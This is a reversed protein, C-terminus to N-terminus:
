ILLIDKADFFSLNKGIFAIDQAAHSGSGDSDYSVMGTAMNYITQAHTGPGAEGKWISIHFADDDVLGDNNKDLGTFIAKSLAIKDDAGFDLISDRNAAGMDAFFFTDAGGKGWLSDNGAGGAIINNGSNGTILNGLENGTGNIDATGTLRLNEVFAFSSMDVSVGAWITDKGGGATEGIVSCGATEFVYGDDGNSGVFVKATSGSKLWDNATTGTATEITSPASSLITAKLLTETDSSNTMWPTVDSLKMQLNSLGFDSAKVNTLTALNVWGSADKAEVLTNLGSQVVRIYGSAFFDSGTWGLRAALVSVDIVDGDSGAKFDAITDGGESVSHYAFRDHGSGGILNDKGDGGWIYDDGSGGLILDIGKGGLLKDANATGLLVDNDSVVGTKITTNIFTAVSPSVAYGTGYSEFSSNEVLNDKTNGSIVFTYNTTERLSVNSITGNRGDGVGYEFLQIGRDNGAGASNEFTNGIGRLDAALRSNFALDDTYTGNRSESHFDFAARDAGYVVSNKVLLGIDAGYSAASGSNAFTGIGHVMVGHAVKEAFEGDIVTNLSASSQIAITTNTAIIDKGLAGVTNVFKVGAAADSFKVNEVVPNVLSRVPLMTGSQTSNTSSAQWDLTGNKVTLQGESYVTARVNTQYVDQELIQGELVVTNGEIAIVKGAQGMRTPNGADQADIHDGALADDATVKIYSGVKLNDPLKAYTVTTNSQSDLGLKVSNLPNEVGSAVLLDRGGVQHLTSGNLDITVDNKGVTLYLTNTLSIDADKPFVLTGGSQSLKYIASKVEAEGANASLNITVAM